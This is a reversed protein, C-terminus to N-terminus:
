RAYENPIHDKFSFNALMINSDAFDNVAHISLQLSEICHPQAVNDMSDSKFNYKNNSESHSM